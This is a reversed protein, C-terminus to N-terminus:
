VREYEISTILESKKKLKMLYLCHPFVLACFLTVIMLGLVSVWGVLRLGTSSTFLLGAFGIMSTFSSIFM